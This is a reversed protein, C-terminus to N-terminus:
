KNQWQLVHRKGICLNHEPGEEKKIIKLTRKQLRNVKM